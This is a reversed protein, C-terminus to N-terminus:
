FFHLYLQENMLNNYKLTLKRYNHRVKQNYLLNIGLDHFQIFSETYYYYPSGLVHLCFNKYEKSQRDAQSILGIFIKFM